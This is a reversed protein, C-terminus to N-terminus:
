RGAQQQLLRTLADLQAQMADMRAADGAQATSVSQTLETRLGAITRQQEKIAELLVPVLGIYNVSKYGDAATTVLEPYIQEVEQAILGMQTGTPFNRGAFEETRWTYSVGQLQMVKELPSQLVRIDKKFRRDSSCTFVGSTAINGGVVLDGEIGVTFTANSSVCSQGSLVGGPFGHPRFYSKGYIRTVGTTTTDPLVEVDQAFLTNNIASICLLLSFLLFLNRM